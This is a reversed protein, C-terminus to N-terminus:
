AEDLSAIGRVVLKTTCAQSLSANSSSVVYGVALTTVTICIVVVTVMEVRLMNEEPEAQNVWIIM